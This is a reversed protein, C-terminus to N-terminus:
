KSVGKWFYPGTLCIEMALFAIEQRLTTYFSAVNVICHQPFTAHNISFSGVLFLSFSWASLFILGNECAFATCHLRKLLNAVVDYAVTLMCVDHKCVLSM